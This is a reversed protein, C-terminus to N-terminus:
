AAGKSAYASAKQKVSELLLDYAKVFKDVGQKELQQTVTDLDIGVQKLRGLTSLAESVNETLTMAPNGHDRYANLTEAPLTNVTDAGILPEVYKVDSYKPNKTSTSAWLLRQTRAGFDALKRFRGSDFAERYIQYATKASAIAVTGVLSKALDADSANSLARKEMLPDTLVDIRSLFFSAVSAVSTAQERRAMRTELGDLYAEIVQRYRPLGFLLTVNINIGEGILQRIAPLGAETGPVKIMVNPRNAAKWLIRAEDITAETDNALKPSVELSVYGDAGQLRDYTPKLIDAARQIDNVTLIRYIEEVNKGQEALTRIEADYDHSEAIAKEFISPNSTVGGVGDTQIMRLLEGSDIIARSIFDSWISQGFAELRRLPNSNMTAEM